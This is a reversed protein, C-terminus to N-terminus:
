VCFPLGPTFCGPDGVSHAEGLGTDVVALTVCVAAALVCAAM